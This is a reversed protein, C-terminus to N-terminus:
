RKGTTGGCVIAAAGGGTLGATLGVPNVAASSANSEGVSFAILNLLLGLVTTHAVLISSSRQLSM